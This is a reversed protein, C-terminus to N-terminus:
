GPSAAHRCHNDRVVHRARKSDAGPHNHKSGTANDRLTRWIFDAGAGIGLHLLEDFAFRVAGHWQVEKLFFVLIMRVNRWAWTDGRTAPKMALRGLTFTM